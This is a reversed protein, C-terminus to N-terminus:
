QYMWGRCFRVRVTRSAARSCVKGSRNRNAPGGDAANRWIPLATGGATPRAARGPRGRWGPRGAGRAPRGRLLDGAQQGAPEGRQRARATGHSRARLGSAPSRPPSGAPVGRRGAPATATAAPRGSPCGPRCAPPRAPAARSRSIARVPRRPGLPDQVDGPLQGAGRFPQVVVVGDALDRTHVLRHGIQGDQGDRGARFVLRLLRHQGAAAHQPGHGPEGPLLDVPAVPQGVPPQADRAHDAVAAVRALGMEPQDLQGGDTHRGAAGAQTSHGSLRCRGRARLCVGLPSASRNQGARSGPRDHSCAWRTPSRPRRSGCRPSSASSRRTSARRADGRGAPGAGRRRRGDPGGARSRGVAAQPGGDSDGHRGTADRRSTKRYTDDAQGCLENIPREIMQRLQPPITVRMKAVNINFVSDLDTDFDLAARALKTHEDIGRIGNWGGWQVLRGARYIYLGQQRNWNLPGSLREFNRPPASITARRCYSGSCAHGNRDVDGVAVEFRQPALEARAPEGPGFPNWPQVKEGNVTIVLDRGGTDELFRHFVIGLHEATKAAM